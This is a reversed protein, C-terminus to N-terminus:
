ALTSHTPEGTRSAASFASISRMRFHALFRCGNSRGINIARRKRSRNAVRAHRARTTTKVSAHGVNKLASVFQTLPSASHLVTVLRPALALARRL